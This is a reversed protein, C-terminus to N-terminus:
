PVVPPTIGNDRLARDYADLRRRLDDIEAQLARETELKERRLEDIEAKMQAVTAAWLPQLKVLTDAEISGVEARTKDRDIIANLLMPGVAGAFGSTVLLGFMWAWTPVGDIM